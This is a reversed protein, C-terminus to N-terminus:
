DRENSLNAFDTQSEVLPIDRRLENVRLQNFLKQSATNMMQDLREGASPLQKDSKHLNRSARTDGSVHAYWTHEYNVKEQGTKYPAADGVNVHLTKYGWNLIGSAVKTYEKVYATVDGYVNRTVVKGKKNTEKRTGVVVSSTVSTNAVSRSAPEAIAQTIQGMWIEDIELKKGLTIADDPALEENLDWSNVHFEKAINMRDVFEVFEMVQADKMSLELVRDSIREGIDGFNDTYSKDSFPIIAIRKTGCARAEQYKDAADEYGEVYSQSKTFERAAARCTSISEVELHVLGANYHLEAAKEEAEALKDEAGSIAARYDKSADLNLDIKKAELAQPPLSKFKKQLNSLSDLKNLIALRQIVTEDGYFSQSEDMLMNIQAEATSKALPYCEALLKQAAKNKVPKQALSKIAYMSAGLFDGAKQAKRASKLQAQTPLATFLLFSLALLSQTYLHLTTRQINM